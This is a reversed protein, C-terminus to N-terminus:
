TGKQIVIGGVIKLSSTAWGEPTSQLFGKWGSTQLIESESIEPGSGLGDM